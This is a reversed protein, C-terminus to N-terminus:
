PGITGPKSVPGASNSHTVPSAETLGYGESIEVGTRERFAELIQVPLAAAGSGAFRLSSLDYTALDPHNVWAVYM